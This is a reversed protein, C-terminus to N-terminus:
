TNSELEEVQFIYNELYYTGGEEPTIPNRLWSLDEKSKRIAHDKDYAEVITESYLGSLPNVVVKYKKLKRYWKTTM